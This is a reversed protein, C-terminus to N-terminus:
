MARLSGTCCHVVRWSEVTHECGRHACLCVEVACHGLFMGEFAGSGHQVPVQDSTFRSVSFLDQLRLLSISLAGLNLRVAAKTPLCRVASWIQCVCLEFSRVKILRRTAAASSLSKVSPGRSACVCVCVHARVCDTPSYTLLVASRAKILRRAAAKSPQLGVAALVDALPAGVVAGRPLEAAPAGAAVAELSAADLRTDAGPALAQGAAQM